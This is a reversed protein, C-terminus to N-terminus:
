NADMMAPGPEPLFRAEVRDDKKDLGEIFLDYDEKSGYEDALSADQKRLEAIRAYGREFNAYRMADAFEGVFETVTNNNRLTRTQVHGQFYLRTGKMVFAEIIQARRGYFVLRIPPPNPQPSAGQIVMFLRLLPILRGDRNINSYHIDGTIDGVFHVTNRNM